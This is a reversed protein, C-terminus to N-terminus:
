ATYTTRTNRVSSKCINKSLTKNFMDGTKNQIRLCIYILYFYLWRGNFKIVSWTADDDSDPLSFRFPSSFPSQDNDEAVVLVSGLEGEKECLLRESTPLMPVNDNVDEVM